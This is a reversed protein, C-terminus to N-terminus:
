VTSQKKSVAYLLKIIVLRAFFARFPGEDGEVPEDHLKIIFPTETRLGRGLSWPTRLRAQFLISDYFSISDISLIRDIELDFPQRFISDTSEWDLICHFYKEKM